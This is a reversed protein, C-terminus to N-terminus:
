TGKTHRERAAQKTATTYHLDNWRNGDFHSGGPFDTTKEDWSWFWPFDEQPRTPEKGRDKTWKLNVKSRFLGAGKKGRRLDTALFPRANLRVGDNLDPHWGIPQRHLPKWRIFLDHPPEGAIIQKLKDQLELAADLRDEAGAEQRKVADRQRTIWDGLYAYTLTDLTRAGLGDPGALQHYNVLANFGDKRGDWLHWVFPRQHFIASHQEFFDNVLWDELSEAKSGTEAILQRERAHSWEEGYAEALLARLRDAAPAENRSPSFCVVGDKDVFKELGDSGLAPCDPFSSGNQRPWQYGVLRAVAVQLALPSAADRGTIITQDGPCSAGAGKPHGNFLWQTPDSSFPKPLGNPYKEAAVKQWHALDFPVKVLTKCTIKISQDIEKLASRFEDSTCFAWLAPLNSQCHPIVVSANEDFAKGLYLTCPLDGMQGALVGLKGWEQVGAKWKGSSYGQEQKAKMMKALGGEGNEWRFLFHCGGYDQIVAPTSQQAMWGDRIGNVEWFAVSFRPSDFSGQGHSAEAVSQLLSIKSSPLLVVRADPNRLQDKQSVQMLPQLRLFAAKESPTKEEGADLGTLIHESSPSGGSFGVLVVNVVEGGITEFARPGLKTVLDWKFRKLLENRFKGYSTLFLWNQPTVVAASGSSGCLDLCREVFCTALDAKAEPHAQECYDKLVDDQKGRGLYPVNTVVLTFQGALIEAAKAVGQATVALEHAEDGTERELAKALLPQLEHFEAVLLDGGLARPNILSGLVPAKQFLDYLREMGAKLKQSLLTEERAGLLDSDPALASSQAAREALKLWDEKKAHLGLGSCALNLTFGAQYGGLKWAALALNFAAIQTCRPDLELGFLNDRLVAVCAEAATLGEEEMRMRALIGLAFVLFHGSGMCPDLVRLEKVTKPWGEFAGAAPTGDEKLRLYPFPIPQGKGEARRKATWWAGLTNHLLFEVMYDETFLQTVAPLEEAGIKNGSANVEDKKKAQWFQYVWGLSDDALFLERPLSALLATLRNRSEAPLRLRLVPDDARFIGPLMRQAFGAAVEWPDGQIERACEECFEWDVDLGSEPEILFGNETLFRAFLMRHWHEYATEHILRKVEQAEDPRRADGLQRGHARLKRRLDKGAEDLHGPAKAEAVGFAELAAAAGREAEERAALVAKELQKRHEKSLTSM